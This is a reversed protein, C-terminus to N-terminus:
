FTHFHSVKSSILISVDLPDKRVTRPLNDSKLSGHSKQALISKKQMSNNSKACFGFFIQTSNKGLGIEPTLPYKRIDRM